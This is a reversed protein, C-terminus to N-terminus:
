KGTKIPYGQNAWAVMGGSMNLVDTYGAQQLRSAAMGSRRGSRCVCVIQREKSLEALRSELQELPILRSGTIHGSQFEEKSRVDLVLTGGKKGSALKEQVETVSISQVNGGMSFLNSLWSM